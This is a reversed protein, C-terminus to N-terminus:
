GRARADAAAKNAPADWPTLITAAVAVLILVLPILMATRLGFHEGFFGLVPPGVLFAFYGATAVLSLRAAADPGSDGAASLAVPFGLSAGLGWLIVAAVALQPNPSLSVVALGIAASIASAALVPRRGLRDVLAAGAFRGVTMSIAFIAFVGSSWAPDFGHGDVMILPLWDNATGEALAMALLIVGILQIRRDRLLSSTSAVIDGDHRASAARRGVGRPIAPVAAPVAVLCVTSVAFLHWSVPMAIASLAMGVVAGIATGLSFCGHMVPLFSRHTLQEVEGGDVNMAVEASGMGLGCIGLGIAVIVMTGSMSGAAVVPLSLASGSAGLLIVTRTGLRAVLSASFLIGIMSGIALGFM